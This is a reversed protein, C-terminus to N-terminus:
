LVNIWLCLVMMVNDDSLCWFYCNAISRLFYGRSTTLCSLFRPTVDYYLCFRIIISFFFIRKRFCFVCCFQFSTLINMRSSSDLYFVLAVLLTDKFNGCSHPTITVVVRLNLMVLPNSTAIRSTCFM